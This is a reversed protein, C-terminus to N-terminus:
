RCCNTKQKKSKSMGKGVTRAIESDSPFRNHLVYDDLDAKLFYVLKGGPKYRTIKKASALKYLTSISVRLYRAAERLSMFDADSPQIKRVVGDVDASEPQKGMKAKDWILTRINTSDSM